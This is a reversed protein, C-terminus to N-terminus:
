SDDFDGKEHPSRVAFRLHKNATAKLWHIYNDREHEPVLKSNRSSIIFCADKLLFIRMPLDDPVESLGLYKCIELVIKKYDM